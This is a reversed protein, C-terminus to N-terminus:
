ASAKRNSETLKKGCYPCYKFSSKLLRSGHSYALHLASDLIGINEKWNKCKCEKM